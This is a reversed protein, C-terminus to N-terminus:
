PVTYEVHLLPAATASGEFSAATRHGTGTIILVLANGSAWGPRNLIEQVPMALDSTRQDTGAQGATTWPPPSWTASASTRTRTSPKTATSFTAANDAAQGHITLSTAESQAEDAAFQVYARTVVAGKPVALSAFRLGVLQNTGDNVLELDSSSASHSGTASEETDDTGVAIRVEVTASGGGGTPAPQVVVQVNDFTSVSGDNAALQLVYTGPDTFTATTDINAPNAFTVTGPGSLKTWASTVAAPPNPLADDTVTGDLNASSPLTITQDPGANVTPPQNPPPTSGDTTYEVHLLPAGAAKGEFARATRHGTGTLILAMANGSTWGTRNVLQQLPASLDSTRQNASAEGALTWPAPTWTAAATTRARTSPKTASTFTAPNDAAQGQITLNTAESQAEDAEFQVYARTITAGRPLTMNPFRLGVLQNTGDNVLELDSSTASFSGTASEEVDDSGVGIRRDLTQSSGGGTAAQVTVTVTDATTAASDSASLQLVYSGAESFTATTDVGGPNAFSVTGPGSVKSWTTTVSAPPNPLGDDSVTGDLAAAAPLTVAQDPGANVVPAANAPPPPNELTSQTGTDLLQGNNGTNVSTSGNWGRGSAIFAWEYSSDHLVLRLVGYDTGNRFQSGPQTTGFSYLQNGGSGVVFSRAGSPTTNGACDMNAFREYNHQHGAMEIELRGTAALANWLPCVDDTAYNSSGSTYRPHHTYLIYHMGPHAALDNRLWTLQAGSTSVETNVAYARWGNGVDWAYYLGGDAPNTVSASGFYNVYGTPPGPEYDHNGPVPHTISKFSGWTPDYSTAYESETGSV